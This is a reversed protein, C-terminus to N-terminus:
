YLEHNEFWDKLILFTHQITRWMDDLSQSKKLEDFYKGLIDSVDKSQLGFDKAVESVKYKTIM